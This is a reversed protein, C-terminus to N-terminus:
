AMSRSRTQLLEDRYAAVMPTTLRALKVRGILPNLHLRVCRRYGLLTGHELKEREGRELWLAAAEDITLSEADPTHIGDRVEGRAQLLWADAARRTPFQKTHRNRNQDFYDALWATKVEGKRTTWTRKRITGAM